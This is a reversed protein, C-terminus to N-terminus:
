VYEVLDLLAEYVDNALASPKRNGESNEGDKHGVSRDQLLAQLALVM